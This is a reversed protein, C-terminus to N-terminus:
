VVDSQLRSCLDLSVAFVPSPGSDDISFAIVTIEGGAYRM